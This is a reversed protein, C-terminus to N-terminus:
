KLSVSYSNQDGDVGGIKCYKELPFEHSNERIKLDWQYKGREMLMYCTNFSTKM